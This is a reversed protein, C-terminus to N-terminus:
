VGEVDCNIVVGLDLGFGDLDDRVEGEGPSDVQHSLLARVSALAVLREILDVTLEILNDPHDVDVSDDVQNQSDVEVLNHRLAESHGFVGTEAELLDLPLDLPSLAGHGSHLVMNFQGGLFGLKFIIVNSLLSFNHFSDVLLGVLLVRQDDLFDPFNVGSVAVSGWVGSVFVNGEHDVLSLHESEQSGVSSSLGGQDRLQCAHVLGSRSIGPDSAIVDVRLQLLDLELDTEAGLKIDVPRLHGDFLVQKEVGPQLSDLRLIFVFQNLPTHLFDLQIRLLMDLTLVERESHSSSEGDSNGQNSLRFNHKQILGGGTEVRLGPSVDPVDKSLAFLTM